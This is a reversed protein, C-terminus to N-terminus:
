LGLPKSTHLSDILVNTQKTTIYRIEFFKRLVTKPPIDNTQQLGIFEGLTSFRYNLLNAIKISNTIKNGFSNLLSQIRTQTKEKNPVDQIFNWKTKESNLEMFSSLIKVKQRLLDNKTEVDSFISFQKKKTKRCLWKEKLM